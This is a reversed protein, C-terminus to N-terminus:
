KYNSAKSFLETQVLSLAPTKPNFGYPISEFKSDARFPHLVPIDSIRTSTLHAKNSEPNSANSRSFVYFDCNFILFSRKVTM